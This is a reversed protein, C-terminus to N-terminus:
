RGRPGSALASESLLESPESWGGGGRPPSSTCHPSRTSVNAADARGRTRRGPAGPAGGLRLRARRRADKRSAAKPEAGTAPGRGAVAGAAVARRWGFRAVSESWYRRPCREYASLASFSVDKSRAPDRSGEGDGATSSELDAEDLLSQTRRTWRRRRRGAAGTWAASGCRSRRRDLVEDVGHWMRQSGSRASCRPCPRRYCAKAPDTLQKLPSAVRSCSISRQGRRPWTRSGSTRRPRRAKDAEDLEDFWATNIEGKPSDSKKLAM